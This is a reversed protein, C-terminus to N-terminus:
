NTKRKILVFGSTGNQGDAVGGFGGLGYNGIVGYTANEASTDTPTIHHNTAGNGGGGADLDGGAGAGGPGGTSHTHNGGNSGSGGSAGGGTGGSANGSGASLTPFDATNGSVGTRAGEGRAAGIPGSKGAVSEIEFTETNFRYYGGGGGGSAGRQYRGGGISSRGAGGGGAGGQAYTILENDSTIFTPEAGGGGHGGREAPYNHDYVSEGGNGGNNYTLGYNGLYIRLTKNQTIQIETYVMQGKGGAGGNHTDSNSGSAGSSARIAISYWGPTLTLYYEGPTDFFYDSSQSYVLTSGYYVEKIKANGFYLDTVLKSGTYIPM